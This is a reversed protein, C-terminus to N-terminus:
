ARDLVPLSHLASDLLPHMFQIPLIGHLSCVWWWGFQYSFINRNSQERYLFTRQFLVILIWFLWGFLSSNRALLLWALESCLIRRFIGLHRSEAACPMVAPSAPIACQPSNLILLLPDKATCRVPKAYHNRNVLKLYHQLYVSSLISLSLEGGAAAVCRVVSRSGRRSRASLVVAGSVAAATSSPRWETAGRLAAFPLSSIAAM